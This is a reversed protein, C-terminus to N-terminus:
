VRAAGLADLDLPYLWDYRRGGTVVSPPAVVYGGKGRYDIGPWLASGNGDGTAAIYLHAGCPRATAAHGYVTPVAGEQRLRVLSRSGLEGDIDIVDFLLGTPLGINSNPRFAWWERVTAKDTTADKFGRSGPYPKKDGPQLPFVAVGRGAYWLAAAALAGTSSLRAERQAAQRDAIEGLRNFETLDGRALADSLAEDLPDLDLM